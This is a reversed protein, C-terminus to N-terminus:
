GIEEEPDLRNIVLGSLLKPYFYTSKQPMTEGKLAVAKVEEIRTPNLLFALQLGKERVLHFAEESDHCYEINKQERLRESTIGLIQNFILSELITVDLCSVPSTKSESTVSNKKLTLIHYANAGRAFLGYAHSDRGKEELRKLFIHRADHESEPYFTLTEVEFTEKLKKEFTSFDFNSLSHLVRHYPLIVLGKGELPTLYMMMYNFGEKGTCNSKKQRCENRYNLATEYRHHGDAIFLPEKALRAKVWSLIEQNVVRWFKHLVGKEDRVEILPSDIIGSRLQGTVENGSDPYLLFVPSFNAQCSRMLKLRDVKPGSLTREHPIIVGRDYEELRVLAFFGERVFSKGQASFEQVYFYFSPEKDRILIQDEQWKKFFSAARTYRNDSDTDASSEKGLIFRIVNYPNKAYYGEQESPSIIDYPPAVVTSFDTIKAPNYVIGKFPHIEAM